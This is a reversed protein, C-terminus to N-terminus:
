RIRVTFCVHGANDPSAQTLTGGFSWKIHTVNRDYGTSAGGGFIVPTYTWDTGNTSYSVTVALGTSGLTNEISGLQFDTNPPIPNIIVLTHAASTGDNIFNITYTLNAGPQVAGLYNVSATFMVNPSAPVANIATTDITVAGDLAFVRGTTYSNTTLTISTSAILNGRLSTGTGVTASTGVQWYVNSGRGGGSMIVQANSATTLTTGIQFIFIANPNGGDDLTLTATLQASTAFCYIGPTLLTAGTSVGLIKGSLNNEPLCTQGKLDNYATLASAQAPGALSGGGGYIQGNQLIAPPFGTVATGPSVGINGSVVAFGTATVTTGGLVAFSQSDGLPPVSQAWTTSSLCVLFLVAYLFLGISFLGKLKDTLPHDPQANLQPAM